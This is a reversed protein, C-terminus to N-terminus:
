MSFSNSQWNRGIKGKRQCSFDIPCIVRQHHAFVKKYCQEDSRFRWLFIVIIFFPLRTKKRIKRYLFNRWLTDIVHSHIMMIETCDEKKQLILSHLNLFIHFMFRCKTFLVKPGYSCTKKIGQEIVWLKHSSFIYTFTRFKLTCLIERNMWRLEM